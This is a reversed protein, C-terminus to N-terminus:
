ALFKFLQTWDEGWCLTVLNCVQHQWQDIAIAVWFPASPKSIRWDEWDQNYLRVWFAGLNLRDIVTHTGVIVVEKWVDAWELPNWPNWLYFLVFPISYILSHLFAIAWSQRKNNALFSNQLAFDGANHLLRETAAIAIIKLM